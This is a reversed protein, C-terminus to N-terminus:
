TLRHLSQQQLLLYVSCHDQEVTIVGNEDVAASMINEIIATMTFDATIFHVVQMSHKRCLYRSKRRQPFSDRIHSILKESYLKRINGPPAKRCKKGAEKVAETTFDTNDVGDVQNM